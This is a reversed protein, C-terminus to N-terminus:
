TLYFLSLRPIELVEFLRKQSYQRELHSIQEGTGAFGASADGYGYDMDMFTNSNVLTSSINSCHLEIGTGGESGASTVSKIINHEVKSVKLPGAGM